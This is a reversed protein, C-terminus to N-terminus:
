MSFIYRTRSAFPLSSNQPFSPTARFCVFRYETTPEAQSPTRAMLRSFSSFGSRSTTSRMSGCASPRDTSFAAAPSSGFGFSRTKTSNTVSYTDEINIVSPTCYIMSFGHLQRATTSRRSSIQSLATERLGAMAAFRLALMSDM